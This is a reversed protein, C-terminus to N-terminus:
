DTSATSFTKSIKQIENTVSSLFKMREEIKRRHASTLKKFKPMVDKMVCIMLERQKKENLNKIEVMGGSYLLMLNGKPDINAQKVKGLEDPLVEPSVPMTKALPKMLTLFSDFFVNVVRKEESSLEAIQGIDDQLGKLSSVLEELTPQPPKAPETKAPKPKAPEPKVPAPKASETKAPKTEETPTQVTSQSMLIMGKNLKSPKKTFASTHQKHSVCLKNHPPTTKQTNIKGLFLILDYSAINIDKKGFKKM